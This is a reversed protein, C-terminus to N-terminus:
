LPTTPHNPHNLVVHAVDIERGLLGVRSLNVRFQPSSIQGDLTPQVASFIRDLFDNIFVTSALLSLLIMFGFGVYHVCTKEPTSLM